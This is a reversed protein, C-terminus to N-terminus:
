NTSATMEERDSAKRYCDVFEIMYQQVDNFWNQQLSIAKDGIYRYHWCEWRYGTIPEYAKPFSLSFGYERAHLSLWKGPKTEAYDDEISGFDIATGTQHQSTGPRASEREAEELGDVSVWYDFLRKQYDYSRYTSSVLLSIGDAKAAEAMVVLADQVCARLSLDMRNIPYSNNKVLPVLDDPVFDPSVTNLKDILLLLGNTDAEIITNIAATFDSQNEKIRAVMEDIEEAYASDHPISLFAAVANNLKIEEPTLVIVPEEVKKECSSLACLSASLLLAYGLVYLKRFFVSGTKM